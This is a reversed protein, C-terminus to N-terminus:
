KKLLDKVVEAALILGVVSPVFSISGPAPKSIKAESRYFNKIPEEKSYVVKLSKIGRKRLERRMVKALPCVSTQYIDGVEFKTPDLKNGAGMSSIIPIGLLTCKAILDVKSPVRDIADIVYDYEKSLLKDSNKSSYFEKFTLVQAEPNIALIRDKMVDVKPKGITFTTAHIQRNLNTVCVDDGDILVLKGIGARVLGEVAFSGVGGIGFVAVTSNKLKLLGEKGILLETRSFIDM